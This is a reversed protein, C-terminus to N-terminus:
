SVLTPRSPLPISRRDLRFRFLFHGLSLFQIFADHHKQHEDPHDRWWDRQGYYITKAWYVPSEHYIMNNGVIPQNCLRSWEDVRKSAEEPTIEEFSEALATKIKEIFTIGDADHELM